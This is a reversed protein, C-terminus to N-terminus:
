TQYSRVGETPKAALEGLPPAWSNEEWRSIKEFKITQLVETKNTLAVM